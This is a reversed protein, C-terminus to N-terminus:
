TNYILWSREKSLVFFLLAETTGSANCYQLVFIFGLKSNELVRMRPDNGHLNTCGTMVSPM